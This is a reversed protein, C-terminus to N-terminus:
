KNQKGLCPHYTFIRQFLLIPPFVVVLCVKNFVAEPFILSLEIKWATQDGSGEM